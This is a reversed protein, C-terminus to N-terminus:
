IILLWGRQRNLWALVAAVMQQHDDTTHEPLSLATAIRSFSFMLSTQTQAQVWLVAQYARRHQYAYEIALQTKGIGGLGHVAYARTLAAKTPEQTLVTHLQALLEERGTFFPNRLFPLSWVGAVPPLPTPIPQEQTLLGLEEASKDFLACLKVRFYPGPQQSGREWRKITGVTTGLHEALDMQRWNRAIREQRLRSTAHTGSSTNM